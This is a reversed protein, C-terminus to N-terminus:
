ILNLLVKIYSDTGGTNSSALSGAILTLLVLGIANSKPDVLLM